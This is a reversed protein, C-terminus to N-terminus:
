CDRLDFMDILFCHDISHLFIILLMSLIRLIEISTNRQKPKSNIQELNISNAM